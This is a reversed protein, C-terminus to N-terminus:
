LAGRHTHQRQVKTESQKLAKILFAAYRDSGGDAAKELEEMMGEVTASYAGDGTYGSSPAPIGSDSTNLSPKRITFVSEIVDSSTGM